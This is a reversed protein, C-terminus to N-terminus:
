PPNPLSPLHEALWPRADALSDACADFLGARGEAILCREDARGYGTRVLLTRMGANRGAELDSIKDGVFVSRALDIAREAAAQTLM